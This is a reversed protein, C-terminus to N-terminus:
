ISFLFLSFVAFCAACLVACLTERCAMVGYIAMGELIQAMAM